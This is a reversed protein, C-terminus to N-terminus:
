GAAKAAAATHRATTRQRTTSRPPPVLRFREYLTALTRATAVTVNAAVGTQLRTLTRRPLTTNAALASASWGICALAQLRRRTGTAPIRSGDALAPTTPDIALLRQATDLLILQTPPLGRSPEGYILANVTGRGVQSLHAIGPIGHGSDRLRQLHERVPSADVLGKHTAHDIAVRRQQKAVVNTRTCVPCRCRDQACCSAPGHEHDLTSHPCDRAPRTLQGHECTAQEIM